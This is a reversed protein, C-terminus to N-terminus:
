ESILDIREVKYHCEIPGSQSVIKWQQKKLHCNVIIKISLKRRITLSKLLQQYLFKVVDDNRLKSFFMSSSLSHNQLFFFHGNLHVFINNNKSVNARVDLGIRSKQIFIMFLQLLSDMICINEKFCGFSFSMRLILQVCHICSICVCQVLTDCMCMAFVHHMWDVFVCAIGNRICVSFTFLSGNGGFCIGNTVHSNTFM